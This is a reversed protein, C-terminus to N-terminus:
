FLAKTPTGPPNMKQHFRGLEIGTFTTEFSRFLPHRLDFREKLRHKLSEIKYRRKAASRFIKLVATSIWNPGWFGAIWKIRSLKM